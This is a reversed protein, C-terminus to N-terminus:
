FTERSIAFVRTKRWRKPGPSQALAKTESLGNVQKLITRRAAEARGQKVM